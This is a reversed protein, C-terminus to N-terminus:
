KTIRMKWFVTSTVPMVVRGPDNGLTAQAHGEKNWLSGGSWHTGREELRCHCCMRTAPNTTSWAMEYVFRHECNEQVEECLKVLEEKARRVSALAAELDASLEMGPMPNM